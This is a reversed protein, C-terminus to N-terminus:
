NMSFILNKLTRIAEAYEKANVEVSKSFFQVELKECLEKNSFVFWCIAGDREIGAFGAGKAYCLSALSLDKTLYTRIM